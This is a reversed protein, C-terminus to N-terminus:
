QVTIRESIQEGTEQITIRLLYMGPKLNTIQLNRVNLGSWRKVSKGTFDDLSVDMKGAGEPIVINTTGLSPNPYVSVIIKGGAGRLAKVESFESKGNLDIQRLRYYTVAKGLVANDDFSYSTGSGTGGAVKSDVFAVTEYRGNGTRRQIEFGDNEVEQLTEWSLSAKGNKNIAKFNALVVPLPGGIPCNSNISVPTLFANLYMRMGNVNARDALSYTHNGLYFVLGGKLNSAVLKSVSASVAAPLLAGEAHNHANNIYSSGSTLKWNQLSGTINGNFQGEFQSYALNPNPFNINNEITANTNGGGGKEFVANADGRTSHFRGNVAENEYTRVAECQALFNGGKQVFSRIQGILSSTASTNHPESAFTFCSTTLTAGTSVTLYSVSPVGAATMYAVHISANGGDNLIAAKPKFGTMDYRVDVIVPATTVYVNVDTGSNLNNNYADILADVGAIDSASIVFPGAKFNSSPTAAVTPKIRTSAVSFDAADKAKGANIVWKLKVNNNLLYVILGYAKMNFLGSGTFTVSKNSIAATTVASLTVVNTTYNIATVTTGVPIASQGSLVMGVEVSGANDLTGTNSGSSITIKASVSFATGTNQNANDMAIIYSGAPLNQLNAAPAPLDQSFSFGWMSLLLLNLLFKKM